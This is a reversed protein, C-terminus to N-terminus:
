LFRGEVGDPIFVGTTPDFFREHQDNSTDLLRLEHTNFTADTGLPPLDMLEQAEDSTADYIPVSVQLPKTEDLLEGLQDFEYTAMADRIGDVLERDAASRCVVIDVAQRNGILSCSRLKAGEARDVFETWATKGPARAALREYYTRVADWAVASEGREAPGDALVGATISLLSEGWYDYVAEGPTISKDEPADLWWVTVVGQELEFSRNCRGAAQVLSDLPAFDRYVRDFSIDVGAEILQTSVTILSQERALRRAAGILRLRDRPRHRTSLHLLARDGDRDTVAEVLTEVTPEDTATLLDDYVAGVNVFEPDRELHGTLEQASDITNCVALVSAGNRADERLRDSARDHSLPTEEDNFSEVSPHFRFRVREVARFFREPSDVLEPIPEDTANEFLRPQTATMAIITADYETTLVSVLRRILPWWDHPLSQPEDLVIISDQLAPLKLSQSNRPGALSEFLQVFTTVVLGARWSEGLISAVNEAEDREDRDTDDHEVVTEALHHHVTLLAGREDTEFVERAVDAVQDIISTFPLAYIIRSGERREQLRLAATLGTLTKGLGTPLTLTAVGEDGAALADVNASVEARAESRLRDLRKGRDTEADDFGAIHRDLADIDPTEGDYIEARNSARAASTKDALVLAGWARLFRGYFDEPVPDTKVGINMPGDGVQSKVAEFLSRNQLRDRCETWGGTGDTAEDIIDGALESAHSDINEVQRLVEEKRVRENGKKEWSSSEFAYRGTDPSAGHHRAVAVYGLLCDAEDFGAQELVYYAVLAGLRSHHTPGDPNEDDIHQQFWTTLKGFDHVLGLRRALDRCDDDPLVLEM